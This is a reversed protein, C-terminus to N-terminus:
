SSRWGAAELNELARQLGDVLAIRRANYAFRQRIEALSTDYIGPPLLGDANLDAIGM